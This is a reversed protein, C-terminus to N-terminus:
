SGFLNAPAGMGDGLKAAIKELWGNAKKDEKLQDKAVKMSDNNRSIAAQQRYSDASGAQTMRFGPSVGMREANPQLWNAWSAVGGGIGRFLNEVPAPLSQGRMQGIAGQIFAPLKAIEGNLMTMARAADKQQQWAAHANPAPTMTSPALAPMTPQVPRFMNPTAPFGAPLRPAGPPGWQKPPKGPITYGRMDRLIDRFFGFTRRIGELNGQWYKMYLTLPGAFTATAEIRLNKAQESLMNMEDGVVDLGAIADASVPKIKQMWEVFERMNRVAPLLEQGGKGFVAMSAAAQEASPLQSIAKMVQLLAGDSGITQLKEATLGLRDFATIAGKNGFLANGVTKNLISISRDMMQASGGAQSMAFRYRQLADVNIKLKQSADNLASAQDVATKVFGVVAATAAGAVAAQMTSVQQTFRAFQGRAKSLNPGWKSLDAVINTVLSGIVM